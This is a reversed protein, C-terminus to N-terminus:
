LKARITGALCKKEFDSAMEYNFAKLDDSRYMGLYGMLAETPEKMGTSLEIEKWLSSFRIEDSGLRRAASPIERSMLRCEAASM